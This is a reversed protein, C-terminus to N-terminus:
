CPQPPAPEIRRVHGARLKPGAWMPSFKHAPKAFDLNCNPCEIHVLSHLDVHDVGRPWSLVFFKGCDPCETVYCLWYLSNGRRIHQDYPEKRQHCSPEGNPEIPPDFLKSQM